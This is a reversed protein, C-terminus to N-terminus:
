GRDYVIRCVKAIKVTMGCSGGAYTILYGSTSKRSDVDGAMNADTYGVLVPKESGFCLKLSSTGRLYRMIWKM